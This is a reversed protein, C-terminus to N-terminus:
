KVTIAVSKTLATRKKNAKSTVQIVIRCKKTKRSITVKGTKKNVKVKAKQGKTVRRVTFVPRSSGSTLKSVKVKVTQKKAANAKVTKPSAKVKSEPKNKYLSYDISYVEDMLAELFADLNQDELAPSSAPMRRIKDGAQKEYAYAMEILTKEDGYKGVLRMGLPLESAVKDDPDSFGM